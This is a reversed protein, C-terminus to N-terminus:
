RSVPRNRPTLQIEHTWCSPDQTHLYWYAEAIKAPDLMMEQDARYVGTGYHRTGPSDILGDIVINAVHVGLPTYEETLVQALTRMLVRPYYLSQGTKRAHGHLCYQNNTLFFSGKGAKRMAPLVEKAILFPGRCAMHTATEFIEDPLNELLEMKPPLERGHIYGANYIVVEPAGLEKSITRFADAISGRDTLDLMVITARGGRGNIAEALSQANEPRRTTLAVHYGEAAFKLALAGGIGWRVEPPMDEASVSGGTILKTNEGDAQWKSTAGIIVAIRRDGSVREAM